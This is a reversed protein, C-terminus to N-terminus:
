TKMWALASAIAVGLEYKSLKGQFLFPLHRDPEKGRKWSCTQWTAFMCPASFPTTFGNCRKGQSLNNFFFEALSRRSSLSWGYFVVRAILAQPYALRVAEEGALKPRRLRKLIALRRRQLRRAATL